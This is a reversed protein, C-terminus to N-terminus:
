HGHGISDFFAMIPRLDSKGELESREGVLSYMLNEEIVQYKGSFHNKTEQLFNDITKSLNGLSYKELLCKVQTGSKMIQELGEHPFKLFPNVKKEHESLPLNTLEALDDLFQFMLGLHFGLKFLDLCTRYPNYLISPAFEKRPIIVFSSVLAAQILRATKYQHAELCQQFTLSIEQSLDLVQGQILGKGGLSWTLFRLLSSLHPTQLRSLIQYSGNLLGDGVLLAQWEGFQVHATPRNRRVLDDDMCPLDDHVLTYAHHFELFSSLYSHNSRPSEIPNALSPDMFDRHLAHALLPRFLKGPPLVAYHYVERISHHPTIMNLHEKLHLTILQHAKDLDMLPTLSEM